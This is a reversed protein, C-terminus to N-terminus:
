LVKPFSEGNVMGGKLSRIVQRGFEARNSRLVEAADHNLPDSPNPELFLYILGYVVSSISLVPRWDERLINLCVNGSLDINPHYIKNECKVKPAEYPYGGPITFKFKYTAGKWFGEDPTISVNFCMLDDKNDFSLKCQPPLELEDLEKQIRIEGPNRKQAAAPHSDSDAAESRKGRGVGFIKIM